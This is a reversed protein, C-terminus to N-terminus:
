FGHVDVQIVEQMNAAVRADLKDLKTSVALEELICPIPTINGLVPSLALSKDAYKKAVDVV